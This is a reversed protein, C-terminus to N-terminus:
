SPLWGDRYPGPERTPVRAYAEEGSTTEREVGARHRLAVEDVTYGGFDPGVSRDRAGVAVVLCQGAGAGVIVHKTGPPCHAFDWRRLPRQQGEVILLAEGSVVLFDEQDYEWHYMSMPEGPGLTVLHMGIQPFDLRGEFIGYAGRGEAANWRADRANLVFWGDRVPVLGHDTQELEAEPITQEPGILWTRGLDDAYAALSRRYREIEPDSTSELLVHLLERVAKGARGRSYATLAWFVRLPRYGPFREVGERLVEESEADRGLARLTSGLGLLAGRREEDALEGALAARYHEVAEDEHGLSDHVWAAQVAVQADDPREARLELLLRRAEELEGAERLEIARAIREDSAGTVGRHECSRTRQAGPRDDYPEGTLL